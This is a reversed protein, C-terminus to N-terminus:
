NDKQSEALIIKYLESVDGVNIEGDNDVDGNREYTMDVGTLIYYLETVDGVNVYGDENVDGRAFTKEGEYPEYSDTEPNYYVVTWGKATAAAVQDKTMKNRDEANGTKVCLQGSTVTPLNEIFSDMDEGSIINNSVDINTLKDNSSLNATSLENGAMDLTTLETFYAIGTLDAIDKNTPSMEKIGAIERPTLKADKGYEQELLWARFNDDPFHEADIPIYSDPNGNTPNGEGDVVTWGKDNLDDIQDATIDEPDVHLVGDGEPRTPLEDILQDMNEGTIDNGTIDLDSLNPFNELGSPDTIGKDSLDLTEVADAESDTLKGDQGFDEDLLTERLNDDPFHEEDIPIFHEPENVTVNCSASLNSGDLTTATITASGATVATVVGNADVTAVSTDSSSWTVSQSATAPLITASLTEIQGIVLTTEIKNLEISEAYVVGHLQEGTESYVTWGKQELVAIQAPTIDDSDVRFIGDNSECVPLYGILQDMNEGTISNGIINVEKVNPFYQLGTPNSVNRGSLDISAVAQAESDYLREDAGFDQSLAWSLLEADPFHEDDIPIYNDQNKDYKNIVPYVYDSLEYRDIEGDVVTSAVINTIKMIHSEISADPVAAQRIQFSFLQGSEELLVNNSPTSIIVTIVNFDTGPKYKVAATHGDIRSSVLSFQPQGQATTVVELWSPVEIDFQIASYPGQEGQKLYGKVNTTATFSCNVNPQLYVIDAATAAQSVALLAVLTMVIKLYIKKM